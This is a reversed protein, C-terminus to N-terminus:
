LPLWKHYAERDAGSDLRIRGCHTFGCRDLLRRMATNDRHTDVRISSIRQLRCLMEAYAIIEAAIGRRLMGRDVALRHIVAYPEDDPWAGDSITSYAPEGDFSICATAMVQSGTEVVYSSGSDIDRMFADATPYGDQWQDIAQERLREQAQAAIEMIRAIDGATTKRFIM